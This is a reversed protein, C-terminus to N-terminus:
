TSQFTTLFNTKWKGTIQLLLVTVVIFTPLNESALQRKCGSFNSSDVIQRVPMQNAMKDVPLHTNLTYGISGILIASSVFSIRKM